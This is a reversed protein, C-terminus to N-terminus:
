IAVASRTLHRSVPNLLQGNQRLRLASGLGKSADVKTTYNAIGNSKLALSFGYPTPM